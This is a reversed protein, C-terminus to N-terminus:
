PATDLYAVVPCNVIVGIPRLSAGNPGTVMKRSSLKNVDDQRKQLHNQQAAVASPSWVALTVDWLPSYDAATDGLPFAVLINLPARLTAANKLTAEWALHGDLAAHALGQAEPNQLGTQGNAFAIISIAGNAAALGPVYTAREMTAVGPDSAETSFYVVERGDAYGHSLLLTATRAATDVALVRDGTNSHAAVDFPGEGTAIIPANLIAATGPLRVLPSYLAASAAGPEAIAPPFGTPGATFRRTPRFDPAGAFILKEGNPEVAQLVGASLLSPAYLAGRRAADERDSSETVIFWVTNGGSEGRHIPLVVTNAVPDVSVANKLVIKDRALEAAKADSAAVFTPLAAAILAAALGGYSAAHRPM